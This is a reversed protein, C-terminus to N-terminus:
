FEEIFFVFIDYPALIAQMDNKERLIQYLKTLAIGIINNYPWSLEFHLVAHM